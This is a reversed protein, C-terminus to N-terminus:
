SNYYSRSPNIDPKIFFYQGFKRGGFIGGIKVRGGLNLGLNKQDYKNVAVPKRFFLPLTPLNNKIALYM